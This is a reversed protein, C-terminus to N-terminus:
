FDLPDAKKSVKSTKTDNSLVSPSSLRSTCSINKQSRTSIKSGILSDRSMSDEVFDLLDKRVKWYCSM